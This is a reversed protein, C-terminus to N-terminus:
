DCDYVEFKRFLLSSRQVEPMIKVVLHKGTRHRSFLIQFIIGRRLAAHQVVAAGVVSSFHTWNIIVKM